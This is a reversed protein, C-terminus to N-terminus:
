WEEWLSDRIMWQWHRCLYNSDNIKDNKEDNMEDNMEENMKLSRLWEDDNKDDIEDNM